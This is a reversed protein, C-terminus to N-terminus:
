VTITQEETKKRPNAAKLGCIVSAGLYILLLPAETILLYTKTSGGTTSPAEALAPVLVRVTNQFSAKSYYEDTTAKVDKLLQNAKESLQALYEEARATTQPTSTVQGDRLGALVSEYYRIKVNIESIQSQIELESQIMSDYYDLKKTNQATEGSPLYLVPDKEYSAISDTLSNLNTQLVARQRLLETILWDYHAIEQETSGSTVNNVTIFSSAQDLEMNKLLKTRLALDEFTCGTETSRFNATDSAQVNEIYKEVADLADSFIAVAEAYDYDKYDIINLSSGMSVNYNYTDEFYARYSDLISNLLAVGANRSFGARQYNFSIIYRTAEEEMNLLNRVAEMNASKALLNNYLTMQDLAKDSIVGKIKLNTRVKDMLKLDLRQATLAEEVVTPSQIKTVDLPDGKPDLGKEAGEYSFSILAMADGIYVVNRAWIGIAAAISGLAISLVLWLVFFRKCYDFILPLDIRLEDATDEPPRVVTLQINKEDM